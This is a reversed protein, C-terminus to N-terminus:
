TRAAPHLRAQWVALLKLDIICLSIQQFPKAIDCSGDLQIHLVYLAAIRGEYLSDQEPIHVQGIDGRCRAPVCVGTLM